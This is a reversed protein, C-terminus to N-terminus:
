GQRTTALLLAHVIIMWVWVAGFGMAGFLAAFACWMAMDQFGSPGQLANAAGLCLLAIACCTLWLGEYIAKFWGLRILRTSIHPHDARLCVDALLRYLMVHRATTAALLGYCVGLAAVGYTEIVMLNQSEGVYYVLPALGVGVLGLGALGDLVVRVRQSGSGALSLATLDMGARVALAITMGFIVLHLLAGVLGGTFTLFCVGVCLGSLISLFLMERFVRRANPDILQPSSAYELPLVPSSM